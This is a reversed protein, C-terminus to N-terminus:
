ASKGLPKMWFSKRLVCVWIKHSKSAIQECPTEGMHEFALGVVVVYFSSNEEERGSFSSASIQSASLDLQPPWSLVRWCWPKGPPKATFFRCALAPSVSIHIQDRPWSSEKSFFSAVWELIRAQSIEHVSSGPPSGDMPNCVTLCPKAVFRSCSLGATPAKLSNRLM